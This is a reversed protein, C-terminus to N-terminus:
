QLDPRSRQLPAPSFAPPIAPRISRAAGPQGKLDHVNKPGLGPGDYQYDFVSGPVISGDLMAYRWTEQLPRHRSDFRMTSFETGTETWPEGILEQRYVRVRELPDGNNDFQVTSLEVQLRGTQDRYEFLEGILTGHVNYSSSAGMEFSGLPTEQMLWWSVLNGHADYANEIESRYTGDSASNEETGHIQHGQADYSWRLVSTFSIGGSEYTKRQETPNGRHDFATTVLESSRREFTGDGNYDDEVVQTVLNGTKSYTSRYVTQPRVGGLWGEDYSVFLANGHVDLSTRTERTYTGFSPDPPLTEVQLVVTHIGDQTARALSSAPPGDSSVPSNHNACGSVLVSLLLLRASCSHRLM